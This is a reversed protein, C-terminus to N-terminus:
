FICAKGSRTWAELRTGKTFYDTLSAVSREHQIVLRGMEERAQTVLADLAKSIDQLNDFVHQVDIPRNGPVFKQLVAVDDALTM